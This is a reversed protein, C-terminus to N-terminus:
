TSTSSKRFFFKMVFDGFYQAITGMYGSSQTQTLVYINKWDTYMYGM